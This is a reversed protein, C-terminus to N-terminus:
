EPKIGAFKIVRAWKDTETVFVKGYDAPSLAIPLSGIALLRGKL